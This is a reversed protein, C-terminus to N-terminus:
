PPTAPPILASASSNMRATIASMISWCAATGEAHAVIEAEADVQAGASRLDAEDAEVALDEVVLEVRALRGIAGVAATSAFPTGVPGHRIHSSVRPRSNARRAM